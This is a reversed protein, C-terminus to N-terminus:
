FFILIKNMIEGLDDTVIMNNCYLKIYKNKKNKDFMDFRARKPFVDSAQYVFGRSTGSTSLLYIM